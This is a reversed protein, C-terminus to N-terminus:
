ISVSSGKPMNWVFIYIGSGVEADPRGCKKVVQDVSMTPTLALFCKVDQSNEPADRFMAKAISEPTNLPEEHVPKLVVNFDTFNGPGQFQKEFPLYGAKSVTLIVNQKFPPQWMQVMFRGDELSHFVRSEKGLKMTVVADAVPRGWEDRITGQAKTWADCGSTFLLFGFILVSRSIPRM